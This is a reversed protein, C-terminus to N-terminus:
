RPAASLAAVDRRRAWAAALAERARRVRAVAPGAHFTAEPDLAGLAASLEALAAVEAAAAAEAALEALTAVTM